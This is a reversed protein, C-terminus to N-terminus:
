LSFNHDILLWVEKRVPGTGYVNLKLMVLGLRPKYWMSEKLYDNWGNAHRVLEYSGPYADTNIEVDVQSTVYTTDLIQDPNIWKDYEHFPVMLIQDIPGDTTLYIRVTDGSRCVYRTEDLYRSKYEWVKLTQGNTHKVRGTIAIELTDPRSELSDYRFYTWSYGVTNPFYADALFPSENKECGTFIAMVLIATLLGTLKLMKM